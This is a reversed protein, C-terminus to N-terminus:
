SVRLLVLIVMVLRANTGHSAVGIEFTASPLVGGKNDSDIPLKPFLEKFQNLFM